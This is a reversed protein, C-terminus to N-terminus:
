YRVSDFFAVMQQLVENSASDDSLDVMTLDFSGGGVSLDRARM